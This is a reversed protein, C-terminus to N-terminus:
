ADAIGEGETVPNGEMQEFETIVVVDMEETVEQEAALRTREFEPFMFNEIDLAAGTRADITLSVGAIRIGDKAIEYKYPTQNLFRKIAVDIRMGIVSEYPGSM